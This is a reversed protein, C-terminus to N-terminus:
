GVPWDHVPRGEQQLEMYRETVRILADARPMGAEYADLSRRQWIAGTMRARVRERIIDLLPEFDESAVGGRSLGEAAIDLLGPLLDVVKVERPSPARDAPWLLTADLGEKAARHFNERAFLFPMGPLLEEIRPVLGLTLGLIFAGNAMIDRTSPGAPLARFEVRIHGGDAPDYVPRNWMWVTGNHLRLEDLRPVRGERVAEMPDEDSLVPLLPQHLAVAEAFLEVPGKRMWGRGFSVRAPPAWNEPLEGRDDTAQRFLAVRTEDWLRKGLFFPSNGAVALVPATALQAANYVDAFGRPPTRLHFQVSTNAGELAVHEWQLNLSDERAVAIRLPAGSRARSIGRSLAGYRPLPTMANRGIDEERLTPLIGIAMLRAGARQAAPRACSLTEELDKALAAFPRGALPGPTLNLEVNFRSIEVTFRDDGCAKVVEINVPAARGSSDVLFLELESGITAPGEGFGPRALTQKLARISDCLRESFRVFDEEEFQERDIQLGM